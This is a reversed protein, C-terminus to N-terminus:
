VGEYLGGVAEERRAREYDLLSHYWTAALTELSEIDDDVRAIGKHLRRGFQQIEFLMPEYPTNQTVTLQRPYGLISIVDATHIITNNM